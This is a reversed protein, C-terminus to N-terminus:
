PWPRELNEDIWRWEANAKPLLWSETWAKWTWARWVLAWSSEM